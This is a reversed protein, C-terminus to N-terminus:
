PLMQLVRFIQDKFGRSLLEDAEELCFININDMHLARRNILDYAREPTGVVVHVGEQLQAIDEYVSNRGVCAYCKVNMYYDLAAVINQTGQVQARRPALILVRCGMITMDLQQLISIALATTRRTDSQAQAAVDHWKIM